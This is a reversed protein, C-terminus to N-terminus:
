HTTFFDSGASIAARVNELPTGPAMGGATSLLMCGNVGCDEIIRTSLAYIEEPPKTMMEDLPHLNGMLVTKRNLIGALSATDSGYHLITAGFEPIRDAIHLLNGENHYLHEAGPFEDFIRKYYPFCFEDFLSGSVQHSMHDPLVVMKLTGNVKQQKRLSFLIAETTIDLLKHILEPEDYFGMLFDSFDMMAAATELPGLSYRLGDLFGYDEILTSDMHKWMYEYQRLMEPLLSNEWDLKLHNIDEYSHIVHQAYPPQDDFWLVQSGFLTPEMAAGFDPWPGPILFADPFEEVLKLQAALKFEPDLYFGKQTKGAVRVTFPATNWIVFPVSEPNKFKLVDTVNKYVPKM